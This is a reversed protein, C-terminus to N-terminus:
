HTVRRVFKRLVPLGAPDEDMLKAATVSVEGVYVDGRSDVCIDHAAYFEGPQMADRGGGWRALLRGEQDFISVRGGVAGPMRQMWPFLGNRAGLEAIYVLDDAAVCVQCPRVVDTWADIWEGDASFIQVRNNERDAVYLRGSRDIGLGHPIRFEGRAEGPQGWSDILMGEASFRHVRANGYGDVVFIDGSPAVVLNTPLNFPAAGRVIKRFDFGEAGSDSAAGHSGIARLHQGEPTFQRVAHGRDDVLYVTDDESIWIGHPRVILDSNWANRFSGDSAFVIISPDGRNFVFVNDKSDVAVGIAEFQTVDQPLRHWDPLPQYTLKGTGVTKM